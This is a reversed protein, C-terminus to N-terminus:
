TCDRCRSDLTCCLIPHVSLDTQVLCNENLDFCGISRKSNGLAIKFWRFSNQNQQSGDSGMAFGQLVMGFGQLCNVVM